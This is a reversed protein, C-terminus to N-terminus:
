VCCELAKNQLSFQTTGYFIHDIFYPTNILSFVIRLVSDGYQFFSRGGVVLLNLSDCVSLTSSFTKKRVRLYYYEQTTLRRGIGKDSM